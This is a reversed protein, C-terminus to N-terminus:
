TPLINVKVNKDPRKKIMQLLHFPLFQWAHVADLYAVLMDFCGTCFVSYMCKRKPYDILHFCLAIPCSAPTNFSWNPSWYILCMISWIKLNYHVCWKIKIWFIEWYLSCQLIIIRLFSNAYRVWPWMIYLLQDFFSSTNERAYIHKSNTILPHRFCLLFLIIQRRVM